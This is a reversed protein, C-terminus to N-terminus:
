EITVTMYYTGSYPAFAYRLGNYTYPDELFNAAVSKADDFELTPDLTMVLPVVARVIDSEDTTKFGIVLKVIGHGDENSIFNDNGDCFLVTGIHESGNKSIVCGVSESDASMLQTGYESFSYGLMKGYRETFEDPTLLLEGNECLTSLGKLQSDIIAGCVTCKKHLWIGAAVYDPKELEWEGPTHGLAEGETEGCGTCTKPETCTAEKWEHHHTDETCLAIVILVVFLGLAILLGILMRKGIKKAKATKSNPDLYKAGCKTCFVQGDAIPEGCKPCVRNKYMETDAGCKPCFRQGDNLPEGCKPCVARSNNNNEDM